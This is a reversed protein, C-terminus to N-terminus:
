PRQRTAKRLDIERFVSLIGEVDDLRTIWDADFEDTPVDNVDLYAVVLSIVGLSTIGLEERTRARRLADIGIGRLCPQSELFPRLSGVYDETETM